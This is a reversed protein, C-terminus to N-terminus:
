ETATRNEYCWFSAIYKDWNFVSLDYKHEYDFTVAGLTCGQPSRCVEDCTTSNNNNNKTLTVFM